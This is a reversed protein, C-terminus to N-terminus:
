SARGADNTRDVDGSRRFAQRVARSARGVQRSFFFPLAVLVAITAQIIMSGAGPDIYALYFHM